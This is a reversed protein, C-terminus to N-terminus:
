VDLPAIPGVPARRFPGLAPAIRPSLKCVLNCVLQAAYALIPRYLTHLHTKWFAWSNLVNPGEVIGLPIALGSRVRFVTSM